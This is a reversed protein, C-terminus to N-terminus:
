SIRAGCRSSTSAVPAAASRMLACSPHSRVIMSCGLSGSAPELDVISNVTLRSATRSTIAPTSRVVPAFDSQYSRRTTGTTRNAPWIPAAWM